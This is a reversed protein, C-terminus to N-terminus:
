SRRRGGGRRLAATQPPDITATEIAPRPAARERDGEDYDLGSAIGAAVYREAEEQSVQGPVVLEEGHRYSYTPGALTMLMKIRALRGV